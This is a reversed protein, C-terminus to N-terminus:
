AATRRGLGLQASGGGDVRVAKRVIRKMDEDTGTVDFVFRLPSDAGRVKALLSQSVTTDLMGPIDSTIGGLQKKLKPTQRDVGKM